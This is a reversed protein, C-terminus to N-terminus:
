RREIAVVNRDHAAQDRTIAVVNRDHQVQRRAIKAVNKQHQREREIQQAGRYDGRALMDQQQRKIDIADRKAIKAAVKDHALNDKAVAIDRHDEHLVARGDPSYQGQAFASASLLCFLGPVVFSTLKM